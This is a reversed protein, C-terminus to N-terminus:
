SMSDEETAWAPPCHRLRPESCGRRGPNLCNEWRLRELLKPNCDGVMMGPYNKYKQLSLTESHQDVQDHVESRLHGVWKLRGFHQSASAPSNSSGLLRLSCHALIMGSCELRAVSSAEQGGLTSLNCTHAVTGPRWRQKVPSYTTRARSQKCRKRWPKGHSTPRHNLPKGQEARPLRPQKRLRSGPTKVKVPLPERAEVEAM